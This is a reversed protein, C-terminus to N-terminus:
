WNGSAADGFMDRIAKEQARKSGQSAVSTTWPWSWTTPIGAVDGACKSQCPQLESYMEKIRGGYQRLLKQEAHNKAGGKSSFEVAIHEVGNDDVWRAAAGNNLKKDIRLREQIVRQSLENGGYDVQCNHVLLATAGALVYYTHVKDVTLDYTRSAGRYARVAGIQV